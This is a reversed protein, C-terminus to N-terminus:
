GIDAPDLAPGAAYALELVRALPYRDLAAAVDIYDDGRDDVPDGGDRVQDAV